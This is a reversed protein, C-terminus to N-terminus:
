IARANESTIEHENAAYEEGNKLAGNRPLSCSIRYLTKRQEFHVSNLPM